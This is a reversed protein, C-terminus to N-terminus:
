PALAWLAMVVGVIAATAGYGMLLPHRHRAFVGVMASALAVFGLVATGLLIVAAQTLARELGSRHPGSWVAAAFIVYGAGILGIVWRHIIWPSPRLDVRALDDDPM